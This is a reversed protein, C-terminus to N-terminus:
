VWALKDKWIEERPLYFTWNGPQTEWLIPLVWTEQGGRWQEIFYDRWERFEDASDREAITYTTFMSGLVPDVGQFQVYHLISGLYGLIDDFTRRRNKETIPFNREADAMTKGKNLSNRKISQYTMRCVPATVMSAGFADKLYQMYALNKGINCGRISIFRPNKRLEVLKGAVRMLSDLSIGMATAVGGVLAAQDSRTRLAGQEIQDAIGALDLMVDVDMVELGGRAIPLHLGHNESGHNVIVQHPEPRSKIIDILEELTEFYRLGTTQYRHSLHTTELGCNKYYSVVQSLHHPGIQIGAVFNYPIVPGDPQDQPAAGRRKELDAMMIDLRTITQVGVIQDPQTQGPGLIRWKNKFALVAAATLAGFKGDTELRANDVANLALQIKRVHDGVAGSFIHAQPNVQCAQLKPDGSLLQSTLPM